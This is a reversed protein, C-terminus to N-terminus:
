LSLIKSNDVAGFYLKSFSDCAEINKYIYDMVDYGLAMHESISKNLERKESLINGKEKRYIRTLTENLMLYKFSNEYASYKIVSVLHKYEEYLFESYKKAMNDILQQKNNKVHRIYFSDGREILAKLENEYEKELYPNNESDILFADPNEALLYLKDLQENIDKKVIEEKNNRPIPKEKNYFNLIFLQEWISCRYYQQKLKAPMKIDM